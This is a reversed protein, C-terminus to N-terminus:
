LNKMSSIQDKWFIFDNSFTVNKTKFYHLSYIIMGHQVDTKSFGTHSALIKIEGVDTPQGGKSKLTGKISLQPQISRLIM